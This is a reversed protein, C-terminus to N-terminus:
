FYNTVIGRAVHKSPILRLTALQQKIINFLGHKVVDFYQKDTSRLQQFVVAPCIFCDGKSFSNLKITKKKIDDM